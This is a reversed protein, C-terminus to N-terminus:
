YTRLRSDIRNGIAYSAAEPGYVANYKEYVYVALAAAVAESAPRVLSASGRVNSTSYYAHSATKHSNKIAVACDYESFSHAIWAIAIARLLTLGNKKVWYTPTSEDFAYPLAFFASRAAIVQGFERPKDVFWENLEEYSMSQAM